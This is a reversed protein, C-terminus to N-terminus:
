IKRDAYKRFIKMASNYDVGKLRHSKTYESNTYIIVDCSDNFRQLINRTVVIKAIRNEPVIITHFEYFRCYKVCIINNEYSIGSTCFAAAKVILMWVAPIETMIMTFFIVDYWERFFCIAICSGITLLNLVIAPPGIYAFIYRLRLPATEADWEMEPFIRHFINRVKGFNTVPIFVPIENKSKGYGACNVNVSMVRFLKMLLSQRLDAYNIHSSNIQYRRRTFFGDLITITKGRKEFTFNIHRLFNAAFSVIWSVIIIIALAITFTPINKILFNLGTNVKKAATSLADYVTNELADGAIKGTNILLASIIAVGSFASSFLVSFALLSRKSIHSKYSDDSSDFKETREFILDIDTDNMILRIDPDSKKQGLSKADTDINIFSCRLPYLALPKEVTMASINSYPIESTKKVFFGNIYTIGKEGVIYGTCCRRIWAQAFFLAIIIIDGGMVRMWEAINFSYAILARAAPIFLIWFSKTTYRLFAIPHERHFPDAAKKRERRERHLRYKSYKM